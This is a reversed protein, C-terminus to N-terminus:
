GPLGPALRDAVTLNAWLIVAFVATFMVALTVKAGLTGSWVDTRGVADFWLFDTWFGALGRASAILLVVVGVAVILAIRGRGSGSPRPRSPM